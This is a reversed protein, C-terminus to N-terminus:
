PKTPEDPPDPLLVRDTTLAENLTRVGGILEITKMDKVRLRLEANLVLLTQETDDRLAASKKTSKKM